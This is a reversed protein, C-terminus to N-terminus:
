FEFENAMEAGHDHDWRNEIEGLLAYFAVPHHETSLEISAPGWQVAHVFEHILTSTTGEWSRCKRRSLEIVIHRDERYTQGHCQHAKGKEDVDEVTAVWILEVPRGVPWESQLWGLVQLSREFRNKAKRM